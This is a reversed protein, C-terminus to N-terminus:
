SVEYKEANNLFAKAKKQYIEWDKDITENLGFEKLHKLHNRKKLPSFGVAHWDDFGKANLNSEYIDFTLDDPLMGQKSQKYYGIFINYRNNSYKFEQFNEFQKPIKEEYFVKWNQFQKKDYSKNQVKKEEIKIKDEGHKEVQENYYEEYTEATTEYNEGTVMDRTTREKKDKYLSMILVILIFKGVIIAISYWIFRSIAQMIILMMKTKM